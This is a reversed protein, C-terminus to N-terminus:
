TRSLDDFTMTFRSGGDVTQHYEIHWGVCQCIRSVINLGLGTGSKDDGRNFQTFMASQVSEPVGPGTDQVVMRRSDLRVSVLGKETYRFANRILNGFAVRALEPRVHGYIGAQIDRECSVSKNALLHSYRDVEQNLLQSLDTRPFDIQKPSRALLLLASVLQVAYGTTRRIREVHRLAEPNGAFQSELIEAAGQIVALPTRLEHSVDGTFDREREFYDNLKRDKEAIVRSVIGIEDDQQLLLSNELEGKEVASSLEMLPRITLKLIVRSFLFAVLLGAASTAILIILVTAELIELQRHNYSIVFPTGNIVQSLIALEQGDVM